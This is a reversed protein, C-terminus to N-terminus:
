LGRKQGREGGVGLGIQKANPPMTFADKITCVNRAIRKAANNM